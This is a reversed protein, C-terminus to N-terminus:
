QKIKTKRWRKHMWFWQGPDRRIAQEIISTLYQTNEALDEEGEGELLILPEIWVDYRNDPRRLCFTPVIPIQYKMALNTIATTVYAKRGFFDVQISGPPSIHQDLLVGIARGSQLSKLIQRAGKRSNIIEAGFHTRIRYFYADTLRNKLPKAITDLPVGLAPFVYNGAEWFGLHGTLLIVGRGLAQAERLHEVGRMDFYEEPKDAAFQDLRLSDVACMGLQEFNRKVLATVQQPSWDPFAQRVNDEAFQRRVVLFWRSLRGIGRGFRLALERPWARILPAVALLAAYELRHRFLLPKM